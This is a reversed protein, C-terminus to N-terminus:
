ADFFVDDPLLHAELIDCEGGDKTVDKEVIDMADEICDAPIIVDGIRRFGENTYEYTVLWDYM